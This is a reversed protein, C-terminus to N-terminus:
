EFVSLRAATLATRAATDLGNLKMTPILSFCEESTFETRGPDPADAKCCQEISRCYSTEGVSCAFDFSVPWNPKRSRTVIGSNFLSIPIHARRLNPHLTDSIPGAEVRCAWM